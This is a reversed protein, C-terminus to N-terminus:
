AKRKRAQIFAEVDHRDLFHKRGIEVYPLERSWVLSRWLWTTGGFEKVMDRMSLLRKTTVTETVTRM